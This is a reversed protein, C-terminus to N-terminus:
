KESKSKETSEKFADETTTTEITISKREEETPQEISINQTIKEFKAIILDPDLGVIKAYERLFARIYTLPVISFDGEELKELFQIRIKTKQSIYELSFGKELRIEKLEEHLPKM